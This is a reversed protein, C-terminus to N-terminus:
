MSPFSKGEHESWFLVKKGSCLLMWVRILTEEGDEFHRCKSSAAQAKTHVCLCTYVALSPYQLPSQECLLLNGMDTCRTFPKHDHRPFTHERPFPLIQPDNKLYNENNIILKSPHGATCAAVHLLQQAQNPM